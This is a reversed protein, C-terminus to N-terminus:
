PTADQDGLVLYLYVFVHYQPRDLCPLYVEEVTHEGVVFVVLLDFRVAYVAVGNIAVGLDALVSGEGEIKKEFVDKLATFVLGGVPDSSHHVPLYLGALVDKLTQQYVVLVLDCPLHTNARTLQKKTVICHEVHM